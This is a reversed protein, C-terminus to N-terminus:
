ENTLENIQQKTRKKVRKNNRKNTPENEEESKRENTWERDGRELRFVFRRKQVDYERGPLVREFLTKEPILILYDAATHYSQLHVDKFRLEIERM